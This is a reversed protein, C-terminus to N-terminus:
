EVIIELKLSGSHSLGQENETQSSRANVGQPTMKSPTQEMGEQFDLAGWLIIFAGWDLTNPTDCRIKIQM